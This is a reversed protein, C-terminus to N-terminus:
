LGKLVKPGGISIFDGKLNLNVHMSGPNEGKVVVDSKRLGIEMHDRRPEIGVDM